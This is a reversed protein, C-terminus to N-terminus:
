RELLPIQQPPVVFVADKTVDLAAARAVPADYEEQFDDDDDLKMDDDDDGNTRNVVSSTYPLFDCDDASDNNRRVLDVIAELGVVGVVSVVVVVLSLFLSGDGDDRDGGGGGLFLVM